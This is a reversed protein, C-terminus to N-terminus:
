VLALPEEDHGVTLASSAGSQCVGCVGAPPPLTRPPSRPFSNSKGPCASRQGVGRAVSPCALVFLRPSGPKLRVDSAQGVGVLCSSFPWSMGLRFPPAPRAWATWVPCTEWEERGSGALEFSPPADKPSGRRKFGRNTQQSMPQGSITPVPESCQ